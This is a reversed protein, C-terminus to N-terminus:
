RLSHRASPADVCHSLPTRSIIIIVLLSSPPISSIVRVATKMSLISIRRMRIIQIETMMANRRMKVIIIYTVTM